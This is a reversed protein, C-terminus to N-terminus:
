ASQIKRKQWKKKNLIFIQILNIVTIITYIIHLIVM